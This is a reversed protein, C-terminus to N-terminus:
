AGRSRWTRRTRITLTRGRRRLIRRPLSSSSTMRRARRSSSSESRRSTLTSRPSPSTFPPFSPVPPTHSPKLPFPIRRRRSSTFQRSPLSTFASPSRSPSMKWPRLLTKMNRLLPRKFSARRVLLRVLIVVKARQAGRRGLASWTSPPMALTSAPAKVLRSRRLPLLLPTPLFPRITSKRSSFSSFALVPFLSAPKHLAFLASSVLLPPPQLFLLHASSLPFVFCPLFRVRAALTSSV